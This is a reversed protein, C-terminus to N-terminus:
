LSSKADAEDAVNPPKETSYILYLMNSLFERLSLIKTKFIYLGLNNRKSVSPKLKCLTNFAEEKILFSIGLEFIAKIHLSFIASM